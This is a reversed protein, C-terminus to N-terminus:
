PQRLARILQDKSMTSRGPIDRQQALEYLEAKTLQEYPREDGGPHPREAEAMGAVAEPPVGPEPPPPPSVPAAKARPTQTAKKGSVKRAATRPPEASPTRVTTKKVAKTAKKATAKTAAKTTKSAGAKTATSKTASRSATKGGRTQMQDATSAPTAEVDGPPIPSGVAETEETSSQAVQPEEGPRPRPSPSPPTRLLRPPPTPPIPPRRPAPRTPTRSAGPLLADLIRQVTDLIRSVGDRKRSNAM